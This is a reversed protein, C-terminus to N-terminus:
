TGLPRVGAQISSIAIETEEMWWWRACSTPSLDGAYMCLLLLLLCTAERIGRTVRRMRM